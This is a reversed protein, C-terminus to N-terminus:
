KRRKSSDQAVNELVTFASQGHQETGDHVFEELLAEFAVNSAFRFHRFQSVLDQSLTWIQMVQVYSRGLKTEVKCKPIKALDKWNPDVPSITTLGPHGHSIKRRSWGRRWLCCRQLFCSRGWLSVCRRRTSGRRRHPQYQLFRRTESTRCAWVYVHLQNTQLVVPEQCKSPESDFPLDINRDINFKRRLDSWCVPLNQRQFQLSPLGRKRSLM